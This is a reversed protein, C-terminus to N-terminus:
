LYPLPCYCAPSVIQLRCGKWESAFLLRLGLGVLRGRCGDRWGLLAREVLHRKLNRDIGYMVYRPSNVCHDYLTPPPSHNLGEISCYSAFSTYTLKTYLFHSVGLPSAHLLRRKEFRSWCNSTHYATLQHISSSLLHPPRFQYTTMTSANSPPWPPPIKSVSM